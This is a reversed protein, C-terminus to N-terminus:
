AVGQDIMSELCDAKQALEKNKRLLDGNADMQQRIHKRAINLQAKLHTNEHRLRVNESDHQRETCM